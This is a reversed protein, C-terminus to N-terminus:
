ESETKEHVPKYNDTGRPAEWKGRWADHARADM